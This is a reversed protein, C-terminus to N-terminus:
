QANVKKMLVQTYQTNETSCWSDWFTFYLGLNTKYFRHHLSHHTAGIFFKGWRSEVFKLPFIEINLHNILSSITMLLLYILIIVPHLPILAVIFYFILVQLVSEIPHFSFSTWPSPRHSSHHVRHVLNFVAPWHMWRHLWYYYTEHVFMVAVLSLPLYLPGYEKWDLYVLTKNNKWLWVMHTFALAFILSTGLSYFIESIKQGPKLPSEEVIKSM